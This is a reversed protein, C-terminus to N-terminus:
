PCIRTGNSAPFCPKGSDIIRNAQDLKRQLDLQNIQEVMNNAPPQVQNIPANAQENKNSADITSQWAKIIEAKAKALRFNGKNFDEMVGDILLYFNKVNQSSPATGVRQYSRKICGAVDPFEETNRTDCANIVKIMEIKIGAPINLGQGTFENNRWQGILMEGSPFSYTGLGSYADDKFRGTYIEGNSHTYTGMLLNGNLFRGVYRNGDPYKIVGFCNSWQQEDGKCAEMKTQAIANSFLIMLTIFTLIFARYTKMQHHLPELRPSAIAKQHTM